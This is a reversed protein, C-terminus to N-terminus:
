QDDKNARPHVVRRAITRWNPFESQRLALFISAVAERVEHLLGKRDAAGVAEAMRAHPNKPNARANIGLEASIRRALDRENPATASMHVRRRRILEMAVLIMIGVIWRQSKTSEDWAVLRKWTDADIGFNGAVRSRVDGVIKREAPDLSSDPM